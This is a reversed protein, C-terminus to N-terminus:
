VFSFFLLAHRHATDPHDLGLCRENIILEKHQQMIAGAMDGAHYLVMALYRCCNAVERHMPGTVQQLISFAESFLTYAESLMGEALQIKGTEVLDKAESCLPVSHKVVPQLDMIDSTQFPAASNFDYKRAAITIGVKQCLNRIVSVKKVRSRADEPLEFEDDDNKCLLQKVVKINITYSVKLQRFLRDTLEAHQAILVNNVSKIAEYNQERPM